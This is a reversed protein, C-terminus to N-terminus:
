FLNYEAFNSNFSNVFGAWKKNIGISKITIFNQNYVSSFTGNLVWTVSVVDYLEFAISPSEASILKFPENEIEFYISDNNKKCYFRKFNGIKYNNATPQSKYPQPIARNQSKTIPSLEGYSINNQINPTTVAEMPVDQVIIEGFPLVNDNEELNPSSIFPVILTNEGDYPLKGTYKGGRATDYYFGIYNDGTTSLIYEGGNTYLNPTIQSKPYYM